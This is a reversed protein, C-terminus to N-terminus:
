HHFKPIPWCSLAVSKCLINIGLLLKNTQGDYVTLEDSLLSSTMRKSIILFHFKDRQCVGSCFWNKVSGNWNVSQTTSLILMYDIHKYKLFNKSEEHCPDGELCKVKRQCQHERWGLDWAWFHDSVQQVFVVDFHCWYVRLTTLNLRKLNAQCQSRHNQCLFM